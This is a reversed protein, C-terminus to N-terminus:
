VSVGCSKKTPIKEKGPDIKNPSRPYRTWRKSSVQYPRTDRLTKYWTVRSCKKGVPVKSIFDCGRVNSVRKFKVMITRTSGERGEGRMTKRLLATDWFQETKCTIKSGRKTGFISILHISIPRGRRSWVAEDRGRSRAAAELIHMSWSCFPTFARRDLKLDSIPCYFISLRWLLLRHVCTVKVALRLIVEFVKLHPNKQLPLTYIICYFFRFLM